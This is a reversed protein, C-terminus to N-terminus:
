NIKLEMKATKEGLIGEIEKLLSEELRVGFHEPVSLVVEGGNSSFMHLIVKGRGPYQKLLDRLHILLEENVWELSIWLHIVSVLETMAQNLTMVRDAIIRITEEHRVRGKVIVPQDVNKLASQSVNFASPFVVVEVRGSLDELKFNAMREGKRTNRESYSTIMGCIVVLRDAKLGALDKVSFAGLREVIDQYRLMPHGSLYLGLVEKEYGLLEARDWEEIEPYREPARKEAGKKPGLIQFFDKQGLERSRRLNQGQEIAKDIVAMMQARNAGLGDFAGAKILSEIVKRNVSHLNVRECFDFISKFAGGEVRVQAIERAANEGVNKIAGLGYVIKKESEGTITFEFYSHNIHPPLVKIGMRETENLYQVVKDTDGMESTLYACMYEVPYHAKLYATQYALIAYATSHSKNFGYGAFEQILNFIQEAIQKDLGNKLCRAIFPERQEEMIAREKKGMAKRFLDAEGMTYNALKAAIQMVQEQYLIVGYTEKLIEELEPLLYSIKKRGHKCEIFDNIMEGAGLPGPRYLAILAIMDEIKNPAVKMAQQTMGSSEMQFIGMTEGRSIMKYVKDDDLPIEDINIEVGYNQKIMKLTQDIVTLNRLGLLDFKAMGLKVVSAGDYQTTVAYPEKSSRYLPMYETIPKDSIVVGAAHIGPQRSLGEIQQANKYLEGLKPDSNIKEKLQPEKELAKALTIDPEDPILKTLQDIVQAPFNLVRGVDRFAARANMKSFTILQAVNTEGGFKETVYSIVEPRRLQCFDVDIDPMEKREPNLFREFLLSYRIPDVNTIRLSYGVLSGAASGRGPGVPIGKSRAYNIMDAVILFYGAFGTDKIVTLEHEFRKRYLREKEENFSPDRRLQSLRQEFGKRAEAELRQEPTENPGLDIRPLHLQSFDFYFQCKDAIEMTNAIAQPIERFLHKMEEPSRFYLQGTQFQFRDPDDLKKKHQICLVIDQYAKGGPNLYHCDNSCVLPAGTKEALALLEQNVKTQEPLGNEQLELYFNDKGLLDQYWRLRKMAESHKGEILLQPIEGQLCASMGLLGEHYKELLSRDIRPKHYFGELYSHTILQCMNKYGKEDMCLLILHYPSNESKNHIKHSEHAMYFECGIIPKVKEKMALSYFEVAGFLNGHDTIAVAPMGYERAKKVMDEIRILGDLMSYETHNHLHVFGASVSKM